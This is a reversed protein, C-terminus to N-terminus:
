LSVSSGDDLPVLTPSGAVALRNWSVFAPITVSTGPIDQDSFAVQIIGHLEDIQRGTTGLHQLDWYTFGVVTGPSGSIGTALPVDPRATTAPATSTRPRVIQHFAVEEAIHTRTRPSSVAHAAAIWLFGISIAGVLMKAKPM